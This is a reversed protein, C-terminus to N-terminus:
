RYELLDRKQLESILPSIPLGLLSFVSGKIEEVLQIGPGEVQILGDRVFSAETRQTIYWEIQSLSLKRYRVYTPEDYNWLEKEGSFLSLATTYTVVQGSVSKLQSLVDNIDKPKNFMRRGMCCTQDAGLCIEGQRQSVSLAKSKALSKAMEQATVEKQLLTMKLKQEDCCPVVVSFPVKADTLIKQRAASTSALWLKSM